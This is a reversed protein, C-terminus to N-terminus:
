GCIKYQNIQLQLYLKGDVIRWVEPDGNATGGKSVAWACYGGYQPAYKDPNQKFLDLNKKNAFLWNAGKYEYSFDSSGEIAKSDTFYGVADYGGVAKNGLFTTNVEAHVSALFFFTSVTLLFAFFKNLKNM